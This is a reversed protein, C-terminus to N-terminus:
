HPPQVIVMKFPNSQGLTGGPVSVSSLAGSNADIAYATVQLSPSAIAEFLFKSQSPEVSGFDPFAQAFFPSGTVNTLNGTTPDVTGAYIGGSGSLTGARSSVYGFHDGPDFTISNPMCSTPGFSTNLLTLAGTTPDASFIDTIGCIFATSNTILYLAHGQPDSFLRGPQASFPVISQVVTLSGDSQNVSYGYIDIVLGDTNIGYAFNGPPLVVFGGPYPQAPVSSCSSQTLNGTAPDILYALICSQQAVYLFKGNPSVALDNQSTNPPYTITPGATLNGSAPDVLFTSLTAMDTGGETTETLSYLFDGGTEPAAVFDIPGNPLNFPSGPVETLAGTNADAAFGYIDNPSAAAVYNYVAAAVSLSLTGNHSLTGAVGQVTISSVSPTVGSAASFLVTQNTGPSVNFPSPPVATVGAPLGSLSVSVAQSFGNVAQVSVQSSGSSVGIPVFLSSPSVSLTFDAAPPPPTSGSGGCGILTAAEFIAALMWPVHRAKM